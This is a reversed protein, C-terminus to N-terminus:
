GSSPARVSKNPFKIKKATFGANKTAKQIQKKSLQTGEAVKLQVKGKKLLVAVNKVGDLDKLKKELGYACFPCSLGNVTAVVDPEKIRTQDAKKQARCSDPRAALVSVLLLASTVLSFSKLLRTM